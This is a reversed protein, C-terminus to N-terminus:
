ALDAIAKRVVEAVRQRDDETDGMVTDWQMRLYTSRGRTKLVLTQVGRSQGPGYDTAYGLLEHVGKAWVGAQVDAIIGAMRRHFELPIGADVSAALIPAAPTVASPQPMDRPLARQLRATLARVGGGLREAFARGRQKTM